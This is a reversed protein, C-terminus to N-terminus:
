IMLFRTLINKLEEPNDRNVEHGSNKVISLEADPIMKSINLSAKMNPKDKEGCVVLVPFKINKLNESFDLNMMSESLKIFDNKSFGTEKFQIEPMFRFIVNQIKLLMKPMTYQTGILIMSNIKDPNEIGYQLALIGGLSLGCINIKDPISKCYNEFSNYLNNWNAEKGKLFDPLNPCIINEQNEIMNNWISFDQGLGHILITKM